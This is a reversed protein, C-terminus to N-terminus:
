SSDMWKLESDLRQVIEDVWFGSKTEELEQKM